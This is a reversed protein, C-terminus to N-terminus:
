KIVEQVRNEEYSSWFDIREEWYSIKDLVNVIYDRTEKPIEGKVKNGYRYFRREVNISGWDWSALLHWRLSSYDEIGKTQWFSLEQSAWWFSGKLHTEPNFIFKKDYPLQFERLIKRATYSMWCTLGMAGSYKNVFTPNGLSEYEIKGIWYSAGRLEDRWQRDAMCLVSIVAQLEEHSYYKLSGHKKLMEMYALGIGRDRLYDEVKMATQRTFVDLQNIQKKVEEIKQNTVFSNLFFVSSCGVLFLLVTSLIWIVVNKRGERRRYMEKEGSKKFKEMSM